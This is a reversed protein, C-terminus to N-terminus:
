QQIGGTVVIGAKDSYQGDRWISRCNIEVIVGEGPTLQYAYHMIEFLYGRVFFCQGLLDRLLDGINDKLPRMTASLAVSNSFFQSGGPLISVQLMEWDNRNFPKKTALASPIELTNPVENM